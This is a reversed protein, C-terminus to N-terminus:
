RRFGIDQYRPTAFGFAGANAVKPKLAVLQPRQFLPLSGAVAWIRADARATLRHAAKEDLEGGAQALLQDIQDTGVRAYNQEITLSGDPAPLPKAYIPAAETAPFATGPWSYLALDFDGAAIHDRFFSDGAVKTIETRVGVASLMRAIRTGTDLLTPSGAPIVFRLTLPKGDKNLTSSPEVVTVAQASGDTATGAPGIDEAGGTKASPSASVDAQGESAEGAPTASSSAGPATIASAAPTGSAPAAASERATGPNAAKASPVAARKWGAETLLAQAAVPDSAGLASSHDEYGDQSALVLHNGLPRDPLGLPDMVAKAVAQRDVARAVAHRVREDALPGTSGNLTLQTYAAGVAKHVTASKAKAIAPLADPEVEAVDLRGAALAAARDPSPVATLVLEDLKARAGWWGANRTLTVTGAKRDVDKVAFPGASATITNRTGDNFADVSGTVSKPYLPSFLSQWDAYPTAFTVRVEHGDAGQRVDAIRDYGANRATWYASNRGSLAKWQSVFDEAGVARGDSWRAKPNLKYSVIQRPDHEVIGAEALFDADRQPRGRDDLRFLMPLVAGAIRATDEDADAQFANLTAPVSDVAWRMTGGNRVAARPVAAVDSGPVAATPRADDSSCGALVLALAGAALVTRPRQVARRSM